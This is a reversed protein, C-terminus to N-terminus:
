GGWSLFGQCATLLLGGTILVIWLIGWGPDDTLFKENEEM